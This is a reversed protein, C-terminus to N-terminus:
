TVITVRDGALWPLGSGSMKTQLSHIYWSKLLWTKKEETNRTKSDDFAGLTTEYQVPSKDAAFYYNYLRDIYQGTLTENQFVTEEGYRDLPKMEELFSKKCSSAVIVLCALAYIIKHKM